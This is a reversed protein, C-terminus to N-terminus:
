FNTWLPLRLDLQRVKINIFMFLIKHCFAQRQWIIYLYLEDFKLRVSLKRTKKLSQNQRTVCVKVAQRQHKTCGAQITNRM